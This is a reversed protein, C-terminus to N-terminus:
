VTKKLLSRLGSRLGIAIDDVTQISHSSALRSDYGYLIVRMHRVDSALADRLWM